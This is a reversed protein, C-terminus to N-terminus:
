RKILRYFLLLVGVLVAQFFYEVTREAWVNVQAAKLFAALCWFLLAVAFLVRSNAKLLVVALVLSILYITNINLLLYPTFYGAFRLLVLVLLILNFLFLGVLNEKAWTNLREKFMQELYDSYSYIFSQM